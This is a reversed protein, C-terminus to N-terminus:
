QIDDIYALIVVLAVGVGNFGSSASPVMLMIYIDVSDFCLLAYSRFRHSNVGVFRGGVFFVTESACMKVLM